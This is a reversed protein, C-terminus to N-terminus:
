LKNEFRRPVEKVLTKFVNLNTEFATLKPSTHVRKSAIASLCNNTSVKDFAFPPRRSPATLLGQRAGFGVGCWEAGGVLIARPRSSATPGSYQALAAFFIRPGPPSTERWCLLLVGFGCPSSCVQIRRGREVGRRDCWRTVLPILFITSPRTM